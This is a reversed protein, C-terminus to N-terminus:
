WYVSLFLAMALDDDLGGAKGSIKNDVDVIRKLERGLVTLSDVVRTPKIRKDIVDHGVTVCRPHITIRRDIMAMLTEEVMAYKNTHTTWPGVNPTIEATFNESTFPNM